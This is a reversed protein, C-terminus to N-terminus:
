VDGIFDQVTKQTEELKNIGKGFKSFFPNTQEEFPINRVHCM